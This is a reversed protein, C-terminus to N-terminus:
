RTQKLQKSIAHLNDPTVGGFYVPIALASKVCGEPIPAYSTEKVVKTAEKDLRLNGSSDMLRVKDISGDMKLHVVILLKEDHEHNGWRKAIRQLCDLRYERLKRMSEGLKATHEEAGASFNGTLCISAMLVFSIWYKNIMHMYDKLKSCTQGKCYEDNLYKYQM